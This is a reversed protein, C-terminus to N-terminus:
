SIQQQETARDHRVRQSGLSKVASWAGKDVVIEWLKSFGMDVSCIIGDLCRMRHRGRRRRSETKGLMLTKEM